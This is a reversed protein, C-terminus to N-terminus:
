LYLEGKQMSQYYGSIQNFSMFINVHLNSRFFIQKLNITRDKELEVHASSFESRVQERLM